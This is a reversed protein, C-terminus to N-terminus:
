AKGDYVIAIGTEGIDQKNEQSLPRDHSQLPLPRDHSQLAKKITKICGLM